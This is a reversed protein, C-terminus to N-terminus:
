KMKLVTIRDATLGTASAVAEVIALRVAPSDAGQCVIVAGLYTPPLVQRIVPQESRDAGTIVLTKSSSDSSQESASEDSDNQFIIEEGAAQTLLVEVKGAGEIRSLIQELSSQLSDGPPETEQVPLTEQATSQEKQPLLMFIIGILVILLAYRYKRFLDVLKAKLASRDM